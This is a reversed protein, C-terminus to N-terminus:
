LLNLTITPIGRILAWNGVIELGWCLLQGESNLACTHNYGTSVEVINELFTGSAGTPGRVDVPYNAHNTSNNGLQGSSNDGWCSVRGNSKVVCYAESGTPEGDLDIRRSARVIQEFEGVTVFVPTAHKTVSGSTPFRHHHCKGHALKGCQSDRGPGM